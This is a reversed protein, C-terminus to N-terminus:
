KVKPFLGTERVVRWFGLSYDCLSYLTIIGALGVITLQVDALTNGSFFMHLIVLLEQAIGQSVAKIKGSLRAALKNTAGSAALCIRIYAVVTDRVFFMIVLYVCVWGIALFSMWIIMHFISDCMPDYIKGLSSIQGNRRAMQGDLWDTFEGLIMVVLAPTLYSHMLFFCALPGLLFLRLSTVQNPTIRKM